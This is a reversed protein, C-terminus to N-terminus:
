KYVIYTTFLQFGYGALFCIASAPICLKVSRIMRQKFDGTYCVTICVALMAALIVLIFILSIAQFVSTSVAACASAVGYLTINILIAKM